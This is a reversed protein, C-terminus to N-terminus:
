GSGGSSRTKRERAENARLVVDGVPETVTTFRGRRGGSMENRPIGRYDLVLTGADAAVVFTEPPVRDMLEVEDIIVLQADTLKTNSYRYQFHFTPLIAGNPQRKPGSQWGGQAFHHQSSEYVWHFPFGTKADVVYESRLTSAEGLVFHLRDGEEAVTGHWKDGWVVIEPKRPSNGAPWLADLLRWYGVVTNDRGYIDVQANERQYTITEQGNFVYVYDARSPDGLKSNPYFSSGRFRDGDVIEEQRGLKERLAPFASALTALCEDPTKGECARLLETLRERSVYGQLYTHIRIRYRGRSALQWQRHWEERAQEFRRQAPGMTIPGASRPRNEAERSVVAIAVVAEKGAALDRWESEAPKSGSDPEAKGFFRRRGAPVFARLSGSADTVPNDIFVTQTQLRTPGSEGDTQSSIAAGEVAKGSALDVVKITVVAAQELPVEVEQRRTKDIALWKTARVYPLTSPPEAILTCAGPALHLTAAGDSATTAEAGARQMQRGRGRVTVGAIPKGAPGETVLVHVERPAALVYNLEGGSGLRTMRRDSAGPRTQLSSSHAVYEKGYEIQFLFEAERPLGHMEYRGEADTRTSLFEPPLFYVVNCEKDAAFPSGPLYVCRWMVHDPADFRRVDRITGFEVEAGKLPEGLDNTIRGHVRAEPEFHLDIQIPEGEYVISEGDNTTAEAQAPRPGPRFTMSRRWTYGYGPATAVVQFGGETAHPAPQPPYELVPLPLEPLDYRGGAHTIVIARVPDPIGFRNNAVVFVTAGDVPQGKQNTARGSLHVKHLHLLYAKGDFRNADPNSRATAKQESPGSPGRQAVLESPISTRERAPAANIKIAQEGGSSASLFLLAFSTALIKDSEPAGWFTQWSGDHLSQGDILYSAGEHYWDHRGFLAQGSLRGARSMEFLYYLQWTGGQGPNTGIQFYRSMWGIGRKLAIERRTKKEDGDGATIQGDPPRSAVLMQDCLALSAIAGCTMSGTSPNGNRYGWGGDNNQFEVFHDCSREWTERKIPIGAVAAAHLGFLAFQTNSNDGAGAKDRVGYNWLGALSGRRIQEKELSQALSTIRGRDRDGTKAAVLAAIELSNEYTSFYTATAPAHRLFDLSKTIVPADPREGANLLALVALSTAGISYRPSNGTEQPRAGPAFILPGAESNRYVFSGDPNQAGALLSRGRAIAAQVKQAFPDTVPPKATSGKKESSSADATGRDALQGAPPGAVSQSAHRGLGPLAVCALVVVAAAVALPTRRWRHVRTDMIRRMRDGLPHLRGAMHCALLDAHRATTDRAVRLLIDCYESGTAVGSLLIADDCCDERVRRLSRNVLWIVPHFWWAACLLVQVWALWADGRRLHTLEHVLVADLERPPLEAASKPLVVTPRWAGTALPSAVDPSVLVCASRPLVLRTSVRRLSEAIPGSEVPRARSIIRRVSGFQVALWALLATAGIAYVALLVSKWTLQATEVGSASTHPAVAIATPNASTVPETFKASGLRDASAVASLRAHSPGSIQTQQPEGVDAPPRATPKSDDITPEFSADGVAMTATAREAIAIHSFVGTPASWLPPVAFKVLAIVLLWYRVPAPWRRACAVVALIVCGVVATQWAAHLTWFWWTDAFRNIGEVLANM